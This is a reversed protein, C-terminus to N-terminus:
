SLRQMFVSESTLLFLNAHHDWLSHQYNNMRKGHRLKALSAHSNREKLEGIIRRSMIGNLYRLTESPKGAGDTIAHYHDHMVVYAFLAFEGSACAEAIALCALDKFRATQFIPLRDKAVSTIFHCPSDRSITSAM